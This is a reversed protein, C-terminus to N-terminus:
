NKKIIPKQVMTSVVIPKFSPSRFTIELINNEDKDVQMPTIQCEYNNAATPAVITFRGENKLIKKNLTIKEYWQTTAANQALEKPLKINVDYVPFKAESPVRINLRVLYVNDRSRNSTTPLAFVRRYEMPKTIWKVATPDCEAIALKVTQDKGKYYTGHTVIARAKLVGEDDPAQIFQSYLSKIAQGPFDLEKMQQLHAYLSTKRQALDGRSGSSFTLEYVPTFVSDAYLSDVNAYTSLNQTIFQQVRNRSLVDVKIYLSDELQRVASEKLPAIASLDLFNNDQHLERVKTEAVAWSNQSILSAASRTQEEVSLRDIPKYKNILFGLHRNQKLLALMSRYDRQDKFANLEPVLQGASTYQTVKSEVAQAYQSIDGNLKETCPYSQYKGVETGLLKPGSKQLQSLQSVIDPFFNNAPMEELQTVVKETNKLKEFSSRVAAAQKNFQSIFSNLLNFDEPIPMGSSAYLMSVGAMGNLNYTEADMVASEKKTALLKDYYPVVEGLRRQILKKAEQVVADPFQKAHTFFSSLKEMNELLAVTNERTQNETGFFELVIMFNTQFAIEEEVSAKLETYNQYAQDKSNLIDSPFISAIDALQQNVDKLAQLSTNLQSITKPFDFEGFHYTAGLTNYIDRDARNELSITKFEEYKNEFKFRWQPVYRYNVQLVIDLSVGDILWYFFPSRTHIPYVCMNAADTTEDAIKKGYVKKGVLQDVLFTRLNEKNKVTLVLYFNDKQPAPFEIFYRKNKKLEFNNSEKKKLEIYGREESSLQPTPKLQKYTACNIVVLLCALGWIKLRMM